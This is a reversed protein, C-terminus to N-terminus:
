EYIFGQKPKFYSEDVLIYYYKDEEGDIWTVLSKKDKSFAYHKTYGKEGWFADGNYNDTYVVRSSSTSLAGNYSRPGKSGSWRKPNNIHYEIDDLYSSNKILNSKISKVNENSCYMNHNKFIVKTIDTNGNEISRESYIYLYVKEEDEFQAKVGSALCIAMVLLLFRFGKM